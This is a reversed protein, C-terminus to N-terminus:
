SPLDQPALSDPHTILFTVGAKLCRTSLALPSRRSTPYECGANDQSILFGPHKEGLEMWRPSLSFPPPWTDARLVSSLLSSFAGWGGVSPVPSPATPLQGPPGGDQM